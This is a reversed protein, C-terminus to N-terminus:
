GRVPRDARSVGREQLVCACTLAAPLRSPTACRSVYDSVSGRAFRKLGSIGRTGMVIYDVGASGTLIFRRKARSAVYAGEPRVRRDGEGRQQQRPHLHSVETRSERLERQAGARGSGARGGRLPLGVQHGTRVIQPLSVSASRMYCLTRVKASVTVITIEDGEKCLEAAHMLAQLSSTSGDVAVMFRKRLAARELPPLSAGRAVDISERHADLGARPPSAM